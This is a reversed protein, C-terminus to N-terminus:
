SNVVTHAAIFAQIRQWSDASEKAFESQKRDFFSHPAGPYITLEHEVGAGTLAEDFQHVAEAPIGQDAGGFLGLVPCSFRDVFDIPAPGPMRENPMIQGYFGIVGALGQKNAAQRFSQGGGFCFGVTFLATPADQLGRLSNLAATVDAAVTEGRTKMVHPWFDFDEERATLGATRGFYDIAVAEVGVEAFRHALEKYFHFLGRVDPLIVIGAGTPTSTHAAYAAFQAGDASTLVLDEGRAPNDGILEIPPEADHDFCM